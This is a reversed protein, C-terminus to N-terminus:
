WWTFVEGLQDMAAPLEQITVQSRIGVYLQANRDELKPETIM